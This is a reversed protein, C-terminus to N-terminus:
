ICSCTNSVCIGYSYGKPLCHEQCIATETAEEFECWIRGPIKVDSSDIKSTSKEIAVESHQNDFVTADRPLAFVFVLVTLFIFIVLSKRQHAM